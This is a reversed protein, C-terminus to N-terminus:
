YNEIYSMKLDRIKLRNNIRKQQKSYLNVLTICFYLFIILLTNAQIGIGSVTIHRNRNITYILNTNIIRQTLQHIQKNRIILLYSNFRAAIWFTQIKNPDISLAKPLKYDAM